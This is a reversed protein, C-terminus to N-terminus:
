KRMNRINCTYILVLILKHSAIILCRQLFCVICYFIYTFYFVASSERYIAFVHGFHKLWVQLYNHPAFGIEGNDNRVEWWLNNNTEIHGKQLLTLKEGQVITLEDFGGPRDAKAKYNYKAM